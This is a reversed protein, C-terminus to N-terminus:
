RPLFRSGLDAVATQWDPYVGLLVALDFFSVTKGDRCDRYVGDSGHLGASANREDRDAAFCGTWGTPSEGGSLRLGWSRALEVKDEIADLVEDRGYTGRTPKYTRRGPPPESKRPAELRAPLLPTKLLWEPVMAPREIELPSCGHLFAYPKGTLVHASPPAVALAGDALLRVEQHLEWDGGRHVGGLPNWLGWLRGSRCTSMDSPLTYWTHLGGGGTLSVWTKVWGSEECMSKWVARARSGDCDVVALRWHAGTMVQINMSNWSRFASDPLPSEWFEAFTDLAPAKRDSRSPLANYGLSRYHM